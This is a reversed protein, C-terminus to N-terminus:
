INYFDGMGAASIALLEPHHLFVRSFNRWSSILRLGICIGVVRESHPDSIM